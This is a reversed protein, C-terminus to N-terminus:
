SVRTLPDRTAMLTKLAAWSGARSRAAPRFYSRVRKRLSLAKGIYLLAGQADKFLYVGPRDPLGAVRERLATRYRGM